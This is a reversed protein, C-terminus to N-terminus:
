APNIEARAASRVYETLVDLTPSRLRWRQWFLAVDVPAVGPICVLEGREVAPDLQHVPILGWGLGARVAQFFDASSPVRHVVRPRTTRHAELVTDQLRDKENFVLMPMGSWNVRTGDHHAALLEPTAAARYRLAGLPEVTCGQLPKPETTVAALVEGRRLLDHSHGEDEVALQLSTNPLKAVEGLVPRFWTSLSDANVAVRLEVVDDHGLETGAEATLMQMQQALRLLPAGADTIEAPTTRRVLVQGASAELARIRQSVASPTLHLHRAAAEFSGNEAIALLAELQAPNFRM